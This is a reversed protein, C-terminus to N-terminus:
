DTKVILVACHAGHAVSNPVSGLYRRAGAHGQERRRDPRGRDRRGHPPDRRGPQGAGIPRSRWAPGSTRSPASAWKSPRRARWPRCRGRHRGAPRRHGFGMASSPARAATVVHLESGWSRAIDAAAQVAKDATASGDTGVVVVKYMAKTGEVAPVTLTGRDTRAPSRLGGDWFDIFHAADRALDHGAHHVPDRHPRADPDTTGSRAPAGTGATAGPCAAARGLAASRHRWATAGGSARSGLFRHPAARQGPTLHDRTMAVGLGAVAAARGRSQGGALLMSMFAWFDDLTSVLMGAANAM